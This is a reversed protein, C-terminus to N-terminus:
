GDNDEITVSQSDTGVTIGEPTTPLYVSVTFSHDGEFNRDDVVGFYLCARDGSMTSTNFTYTLSAPETYDENLM